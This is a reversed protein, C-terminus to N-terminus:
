ARNSIACVSAASTEAADAIRAFNVVLSGLVDVGAQLAAAIQEDSPKQGSNAMAALAAIPALAASADAPSM